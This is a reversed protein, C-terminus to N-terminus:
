RNRVGIVDSEGSEADQFVLNAQLSPGKAIWRNAVSEGGRQIPKRKAALTRM